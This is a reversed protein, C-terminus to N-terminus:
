PWAYRVWMTTGSGPCGKGYWTCLNAECAALSLVGVLVYGAVHM